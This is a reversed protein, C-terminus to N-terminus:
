GVSGTAVYGSLKLEECRHCAVYHGAEDTVMLEPEIQRCVDEVYPCRTQFKCGQPPHAPDPVHGGLVRRRRKRGPEPRPISALLAETYPHKPSGYISEAPAIEAIKGLYMVMIRDSVHEVVSLDHTIFLYTLDFESQLDELLNIVQAQVSVDLASVAEDCIVLSPRLVLSRAVAIRQRQGGSFEHPYRSMVDPSLGVRSLVEAVRETRERVTGIRQTTLPEAVIDRITMRPSLSSFPDQFIMQIHRRLQKLTVGDVKLLDVTQGHAFFEISGTTPEILRILCRGLTTKGCGSEGVLGLTEGKKIYFSVGDVAKVYGVTKRLIGKQIPFYKRLDSVNILLDGNPKQRDVVQSGREM